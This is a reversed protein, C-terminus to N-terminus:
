PTSLWTSFFSIIYEANAVAVYIFISAAMIILGKSVHQSGSFVGSVLIVLGIIIAVVAITKVIGKFLNIVDTMKSNIYKTGDGPQVDPVTITGDENVVIQEVGGGVTQDAYTYNTSLALSSSLMVTLILISLAVKTIQKIM